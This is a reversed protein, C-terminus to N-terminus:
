NIKHKFISDANITLFFSKLLIMYFNFNNLFYKINM